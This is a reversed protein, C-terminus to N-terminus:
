TRREVKLRREEILVRMQAIHKPIILLASLLLISAAFPDYISFGIFPLLLTSFISGPIVTLRFFIIKSVWLILAFLVLWIPVIWVYLVLFGGAATALGKGGALKKQPISLWANYNHGAIAGVLALASEHSPSGLWVSLWQAAVVAVVGKLADVVAITLGIWKSGTVRLSNMAGINSSGENRLDLGRTLRILVYATPFSGVLYGILLYVLFM